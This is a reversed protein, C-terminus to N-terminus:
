SIMALALHRTFSLERASARDVPLLLAKSLPKRPRGARSKARKSSMTISPFPERFLQRIAFRIISL